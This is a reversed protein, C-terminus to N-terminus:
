FFNVLYILLIKMFGETKEYFFKVIIIYTILHIEFEFSRVYNFTFNNRLVNEVTKCEATFNIKDCQKGYKCYENKYKLGVIYM